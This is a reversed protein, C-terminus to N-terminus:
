KTTMRTSFKMSGSVGDKGLATRFASWAAAPSLCDDQDLPGVFLVKGKGHHKGYDSINAWQNAQKAYDDCGNYYIEPTGENPAWGWVADYESSLYWGNSCYANSYTGLSQPCGDASGFDSILAKTRSVYGGGSTDGLEWGEFHAFPGFGPEADVAGQIALNPYGDKSATTAVYQVVAGWDAGLAGDTVSGDNSTGIALLLLHHPGCKQYGYAFRLSYDEDAANSWFVTSSPLYTGAGDARQAGFDLTVFSNVNHSNDFGAQACGLSQAKAYSDGRAVYYSFDTPPTAAASAAGPHVLVIAALVM